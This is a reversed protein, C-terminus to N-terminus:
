CNNRCHYTGGVMLNIEKETFGCKDLRRVMKFKEKPPLDYYERHIVQLSKSIRDALKLLTDRVFVFITLAQMVVMGITTFIGRIDLCQIYDIAIVIYIIAIILNWATVASRLFSMIM